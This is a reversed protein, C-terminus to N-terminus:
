MIKDIDNLNVSASKSDYKFRVANNLGRQDSGFAVRVATFQDVNGRRPETPKGGPTPQAGRPHSQRPGSKSVEGASGLVGKAVTVDTVRENGDSSGSYQKGAGPHGAQHGGPGFGIGFSKRGFHVAHVSKFLLHGRLDDECDKFDTQQKWWEKEAVLLERAKYVTAVPQPGSQSALATQANMPRQIEHKRQQQKKEQMSVM